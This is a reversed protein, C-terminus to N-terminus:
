LKASWATAQGNLKKEEGLPNQRACNIKSYLYPDGRKGEGERCVLRGNHYAELRKRVTSPAIQVGEAIDNATQGEDTLAALIAAKDSEERSEEVTGLCVCEEPSLQVTVPDVPPMRGEVMFTGPKNKDPRSWSWIVDPAAIWDSTGSIGDTGEKTSRNRHHIVIVLWKHKVALDQLNRLIVGAGGASNEADGQLRFAGRFSDIIIVGPKGVGTMLADVTDMQLVPEPRNLIYAEAPCPGGKALLEKLYSFGMEYNLYVVPKQHTPKDLFTQGTAVARCCHILLTTKGDKGRGHFAILGADPAIGQVTFPQEDFNMDIFAAWTQLPFILQARNIEKPSSVFDSGIQRRRQLEARIMKADMRLRDLIVGDDYEKHEEALPLDCQEIENLKEALERDTFSGVDLDALERAKAQAALFWDISM